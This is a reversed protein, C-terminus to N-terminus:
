EFPRWRRLELDDDLWIYVFIATPQAPALARAIVTAADSYSGCWAM